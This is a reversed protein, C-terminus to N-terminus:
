HCQLDCQLSSTHLLLNPTISRYKKPISSIGLKNALVMQSLLVNKVRWPSMTPCKQLLLAVAGSVHPAAMSSGRRISRCHNCIHAASQIDTGPAYLDVCSGVNSGSYTQDQKTSASATIVGQISGPSVKCADRPRDNDNNGAISVVTIGAKMLNDIARKVTLDKEGYVSLNVVAPRKREKYRKLVCDIGMIISNATGLNHCDLIRVSFVTAGPAVGINKGVISGAVHSGHGTCDLGSRNTGSLKDIPDCGPYVARGEFENHPYWIGSDLVYVDTGEGTLNCPPTYVSNYKNSVQDLRDLGWTFVVREKSSSGAAIYHDEEVTDVTDEKLVQLYFCYQILNCLLKYVFQLFIM